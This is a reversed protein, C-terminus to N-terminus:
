EIGAAIVAWRRLCFNILYQVYTKIYREGISRGCECARVYVCHWVCTGAHPAAVKTTLFAPKARDLEALRRDVHRLSKVFRDWRSLKVSESFLTMAPTSALAHLHLSSGLTRKHTYISYLKSGWCCNSKNM